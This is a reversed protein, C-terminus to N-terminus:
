WSLENEYPFVLVVMPEDVRGYRADEVISFRRGRLFGVLSKPSTRLPEHDLVVVAHIALPLDGPLDPLARDNSACGENAM